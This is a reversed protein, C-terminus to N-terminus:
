MYRVGVTRFTSRVLFDLIERKVRSRSQAIDSASVPEDHKDKTSIESTEAGAKANDSSKRCTTHKKQLFKPHRAYLVKGSVHESGRRYPIHTKRPFRLNGM